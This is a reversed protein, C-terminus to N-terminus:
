LQVGLTTLVNEFCHMKGRSTSRFLRQLFEYNYYTSGLGLGLLPKDMVYYCAAFSKLANDKAVEVFAELEMDYADILHAADRLYKSNSLIGRQPVVTRLRGSLYPKSFYSPPGVDLSKNQIQSVKFGKENSGVVIGHPIFIDDIEITESGNYGVGGVVGIRELKPNISFLAELMAKSLTWGWPLQVATVNVGLVNLDISQIYPSNTAQHVVNFFSYFDDVGIKKLALAIKAEVQHKQGLGLRAMELEVMLSAVSAPDLGCKRLWLLSLFSLFSELRCIIINNAVSWNRSHRLYDTKSSSISVTLDHNGVTKAIVATSKMTHWLIEESAVYCEIREPRSTKFFRPKFLHINTSNAYGLNRSSYAPLDLSSHFRIEKAAALTKLPPTVSKYYAADCKSLSIREPVAFFESIKVRKM